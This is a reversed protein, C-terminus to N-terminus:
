KRFLSKKKLYLRSTHFIFIYYWHPPIHRLYIRMIVGEVRM